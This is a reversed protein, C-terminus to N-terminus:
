VVTVGGDYILMGVEVGVVGFVMTSVRGGALSFLFYLRNKFNVFGFM